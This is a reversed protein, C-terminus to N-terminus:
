GKRCKLNKSICTKKIEKRFVGGEFTIDNGNEDKHFSLTETSELVFGLKELLKCSPANKLATGATFVKVAREKEMYEMIATCSEYAFGKGQYYSHFCFGLDYNGDEAHFCIYGIMVGELMVAFFLKTDAFKKTLEKIAQEETPLPMDYVAYQSEKFDSAIAQMSQWDEATLPKILLRDTKIMDNTLIKM